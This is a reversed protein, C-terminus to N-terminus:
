WPWRVPSTRRTALSTPRPRGRGGGLLRGAQARRYGHDPQARHLIRMHELAGAPWTPWPPPSPRRATAPCFSPMSAPLRPPASSAAWTRPTPSATWCCSCPRRDEAQAMNELLRRFGIYRFPEVRLIVGQNNETKALRDLEERPMNYVVPVRYRRALRNVIEAMARDEKLAKSILLEYRRTAGEFGGAGLEQRRDTRIEHPCYYCLAPLM